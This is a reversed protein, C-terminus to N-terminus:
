PKYTDTIDTWAEPNDNWSNATYGKKYQEFDHLLYASFSYSEKHHWGTTMVIFGDISKLVRGAEGFDILKPEPIPIRIKTNECYMIANEITELYISGNFCENAKCKVWVEDGVKVM